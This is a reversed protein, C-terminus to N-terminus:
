DYKKRLEAWAKQFRLHWAMLTKDYHPGLNHWDEIAFLGEAAV